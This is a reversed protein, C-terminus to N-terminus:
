RSGSYIQVGINVDGDHTINGNELIICRTALEKVLGISHTSMVVIGSRSIMERLRAMAKSKFTPDGVGLVEDILLIDPNLSTAFGFGVRGRMGGSLTKVPRDYAQGIDSFAEVDHNTAIPETGYIPALWNINQRPSLSVDFGPNIGSLHVIRGSIEASGSSPRIKGALFRLLTSKGAGNNGMIAVTEEEKIELSLDHLATHRIRRPFKLLGGVKFGDYTVDVNGLNIRVLGM